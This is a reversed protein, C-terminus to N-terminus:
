KLQDVGQRNQWWQSGALSIMGLALLLTTTAEPVPIWPIHINGHTSTPGGCQEVVPCPVTVFIDLGGGQDANVSHYAIDLRSLGSVQSFGGSSNFTVGSLDVSSWILPGVGTGQDTSIFNWVTMKTGDSTFTGVLVDPYDIRYDGSTPIAMAPIPHGIASLTALFLFPIAILGSRYKARLTAPSSTHQQFRM